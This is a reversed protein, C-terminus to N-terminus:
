VALEALHADLYELRDQGWFREDGVIYFPAGFVGNEIADKTNQAFQAEAAELHPALASDAVGSAGLCEAVVAPDAIDKEEAWVAKLIAQVALGISFGVEQAAILAFSAPKPDTPFHAPQLTLPMGNHKAIRKLEMLRYEQRARPREKPPVGGTAAFVEFINMPKYNISAGRRAAVSELRGGALYTFPSLVSFYYDIRTVLAEEARLRGACVYRM